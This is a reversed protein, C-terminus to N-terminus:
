REEKLIKKPNEYFLERAKWLGLKKKVMEYARRMNFPRFSHADSAIIDIIGNKVLSIFSPNELLSGANLQFLFNHKKLEQMLALNKIFSPYREVHVLVVSLNMKKFIELVVPNLSFHPFELLLYTENISFKRYEEESFDPDAMVEFGPHLKIRTHPQLERTLKELTSKAPEYLGKIYHSVCLMEVIGEEEANELMKLSEELSPSGDDVEPLIHVHIDIIEEM